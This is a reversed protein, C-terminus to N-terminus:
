QISVQFPTVQNSTLGPLLNDNHDYVYFSTAWNGGSNNGDGFEWDGHVHTAAGDGLLLSQSSDDSDFGENATSHPSFAVRKVSAPYIRIGDACNAHGKSYNFGIDPVGSIGDPASWTSTAGNWTLKSKDYQFVYDGISSAPYVTSGIKFGLQYEVQAGNWTCGVNVADIHGSPVNTAAQASVSAALLLTISGALAAGAKALRSFQM